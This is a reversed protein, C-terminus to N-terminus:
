KLEMKPQVELVFDYAFDYEGLSEQIVIEMVEAM